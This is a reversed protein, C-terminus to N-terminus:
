AKVEESLQKRLKRLGQYVNARAAEQSCNLAKAIEAYSMEQYKRMMLATKQKQPLEMVAAHVKALRAKREVQVEVGAEGSALREVFETSYGDVRGRRKLQTLATNTAIKYLWARTNADEDLRTYVRYAKLFSEQLCDQAEAPDGLMRWLYGYLERSHDKVLREFEIRPGMM